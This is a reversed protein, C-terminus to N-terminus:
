IGNAGGNGRIKPKRLNESGISELVARSERYGARKAAETANFDVLYELAFARPKSTLKEVM